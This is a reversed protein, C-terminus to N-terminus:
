VAEGKIRRMERITAPAAWLLEGSVRYRYEKFESLEAAARWRAPNGSVAERFESDTMYAGNGFLRKLGDRIKWAQDHERRFDEITRAAVPAPKPKARLPPLTGEDRQFAVQIVSKSRGVKRAIEGLSMGADRWARMEPTVDM